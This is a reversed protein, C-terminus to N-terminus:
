QCEGMVAWFDKQPNMLSSCTKNCDQSNEGNVRSMSTYYDGARISKRNKFRGDRKFFYHCNCNCQAGRAPAGANSIDTNHASQTILSDARMPTNARVLLPLEPKNQNPSWNVIKNGSSMCWVPAM